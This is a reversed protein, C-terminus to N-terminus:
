AEKDLGDIHTSISFKKYINMENELRKFDYCRKALRRNESKYRTIKNYISRANKLIREKNKRIFIVQLNLLDRYEKSEANINVLEINDDNVPIINNLNLVGKIENKHLIKIFDLGDKMKKHKEKPSSM